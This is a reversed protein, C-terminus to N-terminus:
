RNGGENNDFDGNEWVDKFKRTDLLAFVASATKKLRPSRRFILLVNFLNTRFLQVVSLVQSQVFSTTRMVPPLAPIPATMTLINASRSIVTTISSITAGGSVNLRHVCKGRRENLRYFGYFFSIELSLM